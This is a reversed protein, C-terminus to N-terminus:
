IYAFIHTCIYIYTYTFVYVYKFIHICMYIYTHQMYINCIYIYMYIYTIYIHLMCIYEHVHICIHEQTSVHRIYLCSFPSSVFCTSIRDCRAPTEAECKSSICRSSADRRIAFADAFVSIARKQANTDFRSFSLFNSSFSNARMSASKFLVVSDIRTRSHSTVAARTSISSSLHWNSTHTPTSTTNTHKNTYANICTYLYTQTHTQIRISAYQQQEHRSRPSGAGTAPTHQHTPTSKHTHM